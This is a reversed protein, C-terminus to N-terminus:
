RMQFLDLLDLASKCIGIPATEFKRLGCWSIHM